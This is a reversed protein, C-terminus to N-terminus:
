DAPCHIVRFRECVLPMTESPERGIKPLVRSFYSWHGERWAALTRDGEGEEFAFREDVERFPRVTLETVETICLPRGSFDTVITRDGVRPLPDGDAEWEWLCSCTATKTGSVILRGLEDALEETDGFHEAPYPSPPAEGPPPTALFREWFTQTDM